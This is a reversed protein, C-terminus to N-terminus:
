AAPRRLEYVIMDRAPEFRQELAGARFGLREAVRASAANRPDILSTIRDIGLTRWGWALFAEAAETAYGHGHAEFRYTWAAEVEDWQEWYQLGSRGLFRGDERSEVAFLGHGRQAWQQEVIRLRDVAQQETYAGVFTNVRPDAHMRVFEAVDAPNSTLPRLRLRPTELVITQNM